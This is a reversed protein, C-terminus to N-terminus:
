GQVEVNNSIWTAIELAAKNDLWIVVSKEEKHGERIFVYGQEDNKLVTIQSPFKKIVENKFTEVNESM